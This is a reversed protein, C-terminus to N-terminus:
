TRRQLLIQMRADFSRKAAVLAPSPVISNVRLESLAYDVLAMAATLAETLASRDDTLKAIEEQQKAIVKSGAELLVASEVPNEDNSM